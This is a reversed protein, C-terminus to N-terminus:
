SGSMSGGRRGRGRSRSNGNGGADYDTYFRYTEASM